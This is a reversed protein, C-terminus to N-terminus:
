ARIELLEYVDELLEDVSVGFIKAFCALEYDTVLRLGREIHSITQQDIDAGLTQMKAAVQWQRWGRELRLERLRRSSLNKHGLYWFRRKM